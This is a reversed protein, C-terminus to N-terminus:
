HVTNRKSSAQRLIKQLVNVPLSDAVEQCYSLIEQSIPIGLREAQICRILALKKHGFLVSRELLILMASKSGDDAVARKLKRIELRKM